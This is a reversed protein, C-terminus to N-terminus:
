TAQEEDNISTVLDRIGDLVILGVNKNRPYLIVDKIIKTRKESDFERLSYVQLRTEDTISALQLVLRGNQQVKWRDQETDFLIIRNREPSLTKIANAMLLISLFSKKSKPRGIILSFNGQSGFPVRKGQIEISFALSPRPIDKSLDILGPPPSKEYYGIAFREDPSFELKTNRQEQESVDSNPESIQLYEEEIGQTEPIFNMGKNM